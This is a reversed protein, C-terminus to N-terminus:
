LKPPYGPITKAPFYTYPLGTRNLLREVAKVKHNDDEIVIWHLSKIHSLTNAMRTMDGLRTSRRYTPTIVIILPVPPSLTAKLTGKSLKSPGTLSPVIQIILLLTFVVAFVRLYFIMYNQHCSGSTRLRRLCREMSHEDSTFFCYPDISKVHENAAQIHRVDNNNM